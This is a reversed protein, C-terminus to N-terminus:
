IRLTKKKLSEVVRDFARGVDNTVEYEKILMGRVEDGRYEVLISDNEVIVALRM